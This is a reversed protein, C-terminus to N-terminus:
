ECHAKCSEEAELYIEQAEIFADWEADTFTVFRSEELQKFSNYLMALYRVIYLTDFINVGKGKAFQRNLEDCFVTWEHPLFNIPEKIDFDAQALTQIEAM